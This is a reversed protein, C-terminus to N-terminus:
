AEIYVDTLLESPDPEPSEERIRSETVVTRIERDIQKLEEESAHGADLILKKVDIPDQQSSRM